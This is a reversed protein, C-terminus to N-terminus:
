DNDGVEYDFNIRWLFEEATKNLAEIGFSNQPPDFLLRVKCYIYDRVFEKRKDTGLLTTWTEEPGTIRFGDKPGFGVQRLTAFAGNIHMMIDQDFADYDADLGLYKKTSNLISDELAM